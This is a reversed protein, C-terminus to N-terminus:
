KTKSSCDSNIASGNLLFFNLHCNLRTFFRVSLFFGVKWRTRAQGILEFPVMGRKLAVDMTDRAGEGLPIPQSQFLYNLELSNNKAVEFPDARLVAVDIGHFQLLIRQDSFSAHARMNDNEAVMTLTMDIQLLGSQDYVLNNLHAYAVKIYPAKPKYIIYVTLVVIGTIIVAIVLILCVIAIAWVLPHTHRGEDSILRPMLIQRDSTSHRHPLRLYTTM